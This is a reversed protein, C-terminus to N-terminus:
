LNTSTPAPETDYQNVRGEVDSTGFIDEMYYSRDEVGGGMIGFNTSGEDIVGTNPNVMHDYSSDLYAAYPSASEPMAGSPKNVPRPYPIRYHLALEYRMEVERVKRSIAAVDSIHRNANFLRRTEELVYLADGDTEWPVSFAARLCKRYWRLVDSRFPNESLSVINRQM